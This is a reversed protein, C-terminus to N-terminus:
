SALLKMLEQQRAALIEPSRAEVNLRLLPETNSARINFWFDDYEVSVGDLENLRGDSYNQKILMIKSASDDVQINIEGSHWYKKYPTIYQSFTQGSESLAAMIKLVVVMPTEYCGQAMNLFFHGSSEGAFYIDEQLMQAKILTHGVQTMVPVGGATIITEATIKGPRIDYGIKAGPRDALFLRALIARTIGAEVAEGNETVFFIRDADGDTAIGLDAKEAVVRACLDAVNEAKFPDAQHAPFNGDLEWNMKITECPLRKFLEELYLAGMANATDIVVKCPKILSIDALALDHEVQDVEVRDKIVVSGASIAPKILDSLIVDKLEGLGSDLGLPVAKARVIKFGNYEKPNHSASVIIGGDYGYHAVAFYFTPTAALGIDIVEAGGEVLGRMLNEKLIPSSLRADSAAVIKVSRDGNARSLWAAFALGLRYALEEDFDVGYVGRLDYAKFVEPKTLM